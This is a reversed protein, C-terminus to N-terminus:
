VIRPKKKAAKPKESLRIHKYKGESADSGVLLYARM